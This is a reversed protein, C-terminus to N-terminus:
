FSEDPLFKSLLPFRYLFGVSVQRIVVRFADLWFVQLLLQDIPTHLHSVVLELMYKRLKIQILIPNNRKAVKQVRSTRFAKGLFAEKEPLIDRYLGTPLIFYACVRVTTHTAQPEGIITPHMQLQMSLLSKLYEHSDFLLYGRLLIFRRPPLEHGVEDGGHFADRLGVGTEDFHVYEEIHKLLM